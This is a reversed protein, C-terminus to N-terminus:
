RKPTTRRKAKQKREWIERRNPETQWIPVTTPDEMDAFQKMFLQIQADDNYRNKVYALLHSSIQLLHVGTDLCTTKNYDLGQDANNVLLLNKSWGKPINGHPMFLVVTEQIMAIRRTVEDRSQSEKDRKKDAKKTEELTMDARDRPIRRGKLRAARSADRRELKLHLRAQDVTASHLLSPSMSGMSSLSTDQSSTGSEMGRKCNHFSLSTKSQMGRHPSDLLSPM